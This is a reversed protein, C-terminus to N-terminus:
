PSRGCSGRKPTSRALPSTRCAQPPKRGRISYLRTTSWRGYDGGGYGVPLPDFPASFDSLVEDFLKGFELPLSILDGLLSGDELEVMQYCIDM